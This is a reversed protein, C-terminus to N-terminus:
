QENKVEEKIEQPDEINDEKIIDEDPLSISLSRNVPPEGRYLYTIESEGNTDNFINNQGLLTEIEQPELQYTVPTALPIIFDVNNNALWARYENESTCDENVFLIFTGYNTIYFYGNTASVRCVFMNSKYNQTNTATTNISTINDIVLNRIAYTISGNNGIILDSNEDITIKVHTLTLLGTKSEFYGGFVYRYPEYATPTSGREIQMDSVHWINSGSSSYSFFVKDITKDSSSTITKTTKTTASNEFMVFSNTNDTYTFGILLGNGTTSDNGDTYASITISLQGEPPTFPIGSNLGFDTHFAGATGTVVGNVNTLNAGVLKNIDFLNKGLLNVPYITGSIDFSYCLTQYQAPTITPTTPTALEYLLYLGSIASKFIDPDTYRNDKIMLYATSTSFTITNNDATPMASGARVTIVEYNKNYIHPLGSDYTLAGTIPSVFIGNTASYSWTLSGLDIFGNVGIFVGRLFSSLDPDGSNNIINMDTYNVIPRNNNPSPDGSGEQLPVIEFKGYVINDVINTIFSAITGSVTVEIVSEIKEKLELLLEAIRSQPEDTYETENLISLLIEAIRSTYAGDYPDFSEGELKAKLKLLLEAIVSEPDKDYPTKNLISLLIDAINSRSEGTFESEDIIAELIQAITSNQYSDKM